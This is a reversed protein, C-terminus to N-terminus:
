LLQVEFGDLLLMILATPPSYANVNVFAVGKLMSLAGKPHSLPEVAIVM